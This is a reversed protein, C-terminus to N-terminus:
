LGLDVELMRLATQAAPDHSAHAKLLKFLDDLRNRSSPDKSWARVQEVGAALRVRKSDESNQVDEQRQFQEYHAREAVGHDNLWARTVRYSLMACNALEWADVDAPAHGLVRLLSKNCRNHLVLMVCAGSGADSFIGDLVARVRRDVDVYVEDHFQEQEPVDLECRVGSGIGLETRLSDVLAAIQQRGGKRDSQHGHGYGMWERLGEKIRLTVPGCGHGPQDLGAKKIRGHGSDSFNPPHKDNSSNLKM